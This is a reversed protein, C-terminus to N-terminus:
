ALSGDGATRPGGHEAVLAQALRELGVSRSAKVLVADDPALSSRLLALAADPDEASCLRGSFGAARAGEAIGAAAAGVVVLGDIGLDAAMAGVDAHAQASVAGLEAMQGLVAWRRGPVSVRALSRLAAATSAPNANYADNIVVLGHATETLEMRWASVRSSRLATAAAALPVGVLDAVALAALANGVLHEGVVDLQVEASGTPGVATFRPRALRDTRVDVARWQADDTRGYTVVRGPAVAAMRAVRPDDANLVATGHGPLGEVLEAKARAVTDIDGLLELHAAGVATVVGADPRVLPVLRAIHGLGRAGLETVLVESDSELLCCTLPVGLENNYSGPAAVVRRGAGCAAAILDKTSTKGQSGTVAVVFPDVHDRLWAGLGGLADAPDDVVLGGPWRPSRDAAALYGAAGRALADAIFDHGDAHAGPLAVFLSGPVAARSDITVTDVVRGGDEPTVPDAGVVDALQTLTLPVM